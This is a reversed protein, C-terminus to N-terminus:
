NMKMMSECDFDWRVLVQGQGYGQDKVKVKSEMLTITM